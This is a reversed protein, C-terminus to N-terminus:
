YCLLLCEPLLHLVLYYSFNNSVSDLICLASYFYHVVCGNWLLKRWRLLNLKRLEVLFLCIFAIIKLYILTGRLHSLICYIYKLFLELHYM